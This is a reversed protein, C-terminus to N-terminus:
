PKPMVKLTLAVVELSHLSIRLIYTYNATAWYDLNVTVREPSWGATFSGKYELNTPLDPYKPMVFTAKDTNNVVIGGINTKPDPRVGKIVEDPNGGPGIHFDGTVETSWDFWVAGAESANIFVDGIIRSSGELRFVPQGDSSEVSSYIAQKFLISKGTATVDIALKRTASEYKGTSTLIHTDPDYNVYFSGSNPIVHASHLDRHPYETVFHTIENDRIWAIAHQLGSEATQLALVQQGYVNTSKWLVPVLVASGSLIITVVLFCALIIVLVSGKDNNLLDM